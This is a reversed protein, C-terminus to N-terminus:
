DEGKIEEEISTFSDIRHMDLDSNGDLHFIVGHFIILFKSGRGIEEEKDFNCIPLNDLIPNCEKCHYHGDDTYCNQFQSYRKLEENEM